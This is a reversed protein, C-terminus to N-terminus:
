AELSGSIGISMTSDQGTGGGPPAWNRSHWPQLIIKNRHSRVITNIPRQDVGGPDSNPRGSGPLTSVRHFGCSLSPSGIGRRLRNKGIFATMWTPGRSKCCLSLLGRYFGIARGFFTRYWRLDVQRLAVHHGGVVDPHRQGDALVAGAASKAALRNLMRHMAHVDLGFMALESAGHTHSLGITYAFGPGIEDQPGDRRAM